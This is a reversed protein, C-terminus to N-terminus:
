CVFSADVSLSRYIPALTSLPPSHSLFTVGVLTFTKIAVSAAAADAVAAAMVNDKDAVALKNAHCGALRPLPLSVSLCECCLGPQVFSSLLQLGTAIETDRACVSVYIYMYLYACRTKAGPSDCLKANLLLPLWCM